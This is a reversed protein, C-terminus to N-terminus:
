KKTEKEKKPKIEELIKKEATPLARLPHDPDALRSGGAFHLKEDENRSVLYSPVTVVRDGIQVHGHTIFQRAQDATTALGKEHVITQLRRALINATTLGLVDDLTATQDLLGMRFLKDILEKKQKEAAPGGKTFLKQATKRYKAVKTQMKWVERKNKLGFKKIIEKEETIRTADWRKLPADYKNSQKKIKGM